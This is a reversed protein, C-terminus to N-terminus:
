PMKSMIEDMAAVFRELEHPAGVSVRIFREFGPEKWPKVIIGHALLAENVPGNPRGLDIFLFNAASPAIRLGPWDRACLQAALAERLRVTQEVAAAMCAEDGWAALAAAQAALNVNFPTRVRDLLQVLAADSAIGYGVRLGALGWAKSFTRLVIWPFAVAEGRLRALVDPYGPALRAYEYYAEDVVLLTGAPVAALLREFDRTDFMCGVPNSPNALMVLKPGRALAACWAEIDFGLEPTLALLEVQAGMMRPYIEHLGFAPRQTLVRDGPGLFAQCLMQLIDESGNGIVLEAPQAGSREAIAARLATCHADPYTGARAALDVLARAVAPSAGYPNENSALRAIQDVGYRARVAESSLGANYAPLPAVEPRALAHIATTNM